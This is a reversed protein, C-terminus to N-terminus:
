GTLPWTVSRWTIEAEDQFYDDGVQANQLLVQEFQQAAVAFQKLEINAM